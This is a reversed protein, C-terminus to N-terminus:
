GNAGQYARLYCFKKKLLVGQGKVFWICSFNGLFQGGVDTSDQANHKRSSVFLSVGLEKTYKLATRSKQKRKEFTVMVCIPKM